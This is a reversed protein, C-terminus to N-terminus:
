IESEKYYPILSSSDSKLNNIKEEKKDKDNM